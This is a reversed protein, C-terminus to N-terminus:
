VATDKEERQSVVHQHELEMLAAEFAMTKLREAHEVALSDTGFRPLSLAPSPTPLPLRLSPYSPRQEVKNRHKRHRLADSGGGRPRGTGRPSSRIPEGGEEKVTDEEKIADEEKVTDEVKEMREARYRQRTHFCRGLGSNPDDDGEEDETSLSLAVDSSPTSTLLSYYIAHIRPASLDVVREEEEEECEIDRYRKLVSRKMEKERIEERRLLIPSSLSRNELFPASPSSPPPPPERAFSPRADNGWGGPPFHKGTPATPTSPSAPSSGSSQSRAELEEEDETFMETEEPFPFSNGKKSFLCFDPLPPRRPRGRRTSWGPHRGGGGDRSLMRKVEDEVFVKAEQTRERRASSAHLFAREKRRWRSSAAAAGWEERETGRRRRTLETVSFVLPPPRSFTYWASSTDTSCAPPSSPPNASALSPLATSPLLFAPMSTSSRSHPEQIDSDESEPNSTQCALPPPFPSVSTENESTSVCPGTDATGMNGECATCEMADKDEKMPHTSDQVGGVTTPLRMLPFVAELASFPPTSFTFSTNSLFSVDGKAEEEEETTRAANHYIRGDGVATTIRTTTTATTMRTSPTSFPGSLPITEEKGTDCALLLRSFTSPSHFDEAKEVEVGKGSGKRKKDRTIRYVFPCLPHFSERTTEKKNENVTMVSSSPSTVCPSPPSSSSPPCWSHTPPSLVPAVKNGGESSHLSTPFSLTSPVSASDRPIALASSSPYYVSRSVPDVALNLSTTFKWHSPSSAYTTSNNSYTARNSSSIVETSGCGTESSTATNDVWANAIMWFYINSFLSIDVRLFEKKETSTKTFVEEIYIHRELDIALPLDFVLTPLEM